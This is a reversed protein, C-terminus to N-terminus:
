DTLSGPPSSGDVPIFVQGSRGTDIGCAVADELEDEHM